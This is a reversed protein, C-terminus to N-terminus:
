TICLTYLLKLVAKPLVKSTKCEDQSGKVSIPDVKIMVL